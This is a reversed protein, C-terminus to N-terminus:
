QCIAMFRTKLQESQSFYNEVIQALSDGELSVIGQYPDGKSTDVTLVLQGKGILQSFHQAAQM